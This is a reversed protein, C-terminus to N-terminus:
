PIINDNRLGVILASNGHDMKKKKKSYMMLFVINNRIKRFEKRWKSGSDFDTNVVSVKKIKLHNHLCYVSLLMEGMYALSRKMRTYDSIKVSKEVEFLISFLFNSYDNFLDWKCIFMQYPFFKNSNYFFDLATSKYEPYLKEITMLLIYLDESCINYEFGHAVSWPAVVPEILVIDNEGIVKKINKIEDESIDFYRRYHCFGIYDVKEFNKWAWYLVTLESYQDNKNSINDGINDGQFDLEFQSIEKGAHIPQYVDDSRVDGPKHTCVLIKIKEM